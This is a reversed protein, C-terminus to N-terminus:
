AGQLRASPGGSLFKPGDVLILKPRKGESKARVLPQETVDGLGRECKLLTHM